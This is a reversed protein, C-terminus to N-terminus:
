IWGWRRRSIVDTEGPLVSRDSVDVWPIGTRTFCDTEHPTQVVKAGTEGVLIRGKECRFGRRRLETVYARSFSSDGTRITQLVGWQVDGMRQFLDINVAPALWKLQKYKKGWREGKEILGQALLDRLVQEPAPESRPVAFLDGGEKATWRRTKPDLLIEVDKVEPCGRRISGGVCAKFCTPYTSREALRIPDDSYERFPETGSAGKSLSVLFQLAVGVAEERRVTEAEKAPPAQTSGLQCRSRRSPTAHREPV